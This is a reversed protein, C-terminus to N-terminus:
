VKKADGAASFHTRLGTWCRYYDKDIDLIGRGELSWRTVRPVGRMEFMFALTDSPLHDPADRASRAGEADALKSRREREEADKRMVAEFSETDPGHPSMCSHLSCGGPVFGGEGGKKAEYEGRVLGMFENMFNRHYYPPRFTDHAVSWRPPFIVFDAVAEGRTNSPVTLVTFISPDPHDFAVSNMPCFRSLDYKYPVYNGHWAVVNFPSFSQRACFLSGCFKHVVEYRGGGSAEPEDAAADGGGDDYRAVPVLFDRPNALGNAGIPGLDPLRFHGEFVELIYGRHWGGSAETESRSAGDDEAAGERDGDQTAWRDVSFRLGRPLVCIEGPSVRMVGLETTVRLSGEQPVVLMDGDADCLVRGGAAGARLMDANFRYMHVAYGSRDGASGCGCVTYLGKLFDVATAAATAAASAASAKPTWRLQNPTTCMDKQSGGFDGALFEPAADADMPEFPTHTVSPKIRYLWTRLNADRPMTFASGSLQEAYLGYPCVRPNNRGEPLAGPLAESSCENGFGPMYALGSSRELHVHASGMM